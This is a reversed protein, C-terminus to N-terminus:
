YDPVRYELMIIENFTNIEQAERFNYDKTLPSRTTWHRDAIMSTIFFNSEPLKTIVRTIVSWILSWETRKGTNILQFLKDIMSLPMQSNLAFSNRTM